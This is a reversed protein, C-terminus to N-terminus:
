KPGGKARVKASKLSLAQMHARMAATARRNREDESLVRDPDVENIWKLRYGQRVKAL